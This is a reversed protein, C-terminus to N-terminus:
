ARLVFWPRGASELQAGKKRQHGHLRTRHTAMMLSGMRGASIAVWARGVSTTTKRSSQANWRGTVSEPSTTSRCGPPSGSFVVLTSSSIMHSGELQQHVEFMFALSGGPIKTPKLDATSAAEFTKADPGHPMMCSHLSAGACGRKSTLSLLNCVDFIQLCTGLDLPCGCCVGATCLLQEQVPPQCGALCPHPSTQLGSM